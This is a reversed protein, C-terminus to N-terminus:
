DDLSLLQHTRPKILSAIEFLLLYVVISSSILCLGRAEVNKNGHICTCSCTCTSMYVCVFIFTHISVKRSCRTITHVIVISPRLCLLSFLTYVFKSIQLLGEISYFYLVFFFTFSNIYYRSNRGPALLFGKGPINIPNIEFCSWLGPLSSLM